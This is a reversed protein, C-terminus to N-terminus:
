ERAGALASAFARGLARRLGPLASVVRAVKREDSLPVAACEREDVLLLFAEWDVTHATWVRYTKRTRAHAFEGLYSDCRALKWGLEGCLRMSALTLMADAHEALVVIHQRDCPYVLGARTTKLHDKFKHADFVSLRCPGVLAHTALEDRETPNLDRWLGDLDGIDRNFVIHRRGEYDSRYRAWLIEQTPIKRTLLCEAVGLLLDDGNGYKGRYFVEYYSLLTIDNDYCFEFIEDVRDRPADAPVLVVECYEDRYTGDPSVRDLDDGLLRGRTARAESLAARLEDSRSSGQRVAKNAIDVCMEEYGRPDAFRAFWRPKGHYLVVVGLDDEGFSVPVARYAEGSGALVPKPSPYVGVVWGSRGSAWKRLPHLVLQAYKNDVLIVQKEVFVTIGGSYAGNLHSLVRKIDDEDVALGALLGGLLVNYKVERDLHRGIRELEDHHFLRDRTGDHVLYRYWQYKGSGGNPDHKEVHRFVRVVGNWGRVTLLLESYLSLQVGHRTCLERVRLRTAEDDIYQIAVVSETADYLVERGGVVKKLADLSLGNARTPTAREM